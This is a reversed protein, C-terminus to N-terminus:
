ASLRSQVRANPFARNCETRTLRPCLRALQRRLPEEADAYFRRDPQFSETWVDNALILEHRQMLIQWGNRLGDVREVSVVGERALDSASLLTEKDRCLRRLAGNASLLRQHPSLSLDRSPLGQGLANKPLRLMHRTVQEKCTCKGVWRVTQYGNDRTLVLDGACLDRITKEGNVTKIHVDGSLCGIAASTSVKENRTAGVRFGPAAQIEAGDVEVVTMTEYLM